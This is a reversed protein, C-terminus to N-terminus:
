IGLALQLLQEAARAALARPLDAVLQPLRHQLVEADEAPLILHQLLDSDDLAEALPVRVNDDLVLAVDEVGIERLRDLEAIEEVDGRAHELGPDRALLAPAGM